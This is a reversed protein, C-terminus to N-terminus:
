DRHQHPFSSRFDPFENSRLDIQKQLVIRNAMKQVIELLSEKEKHSLAPRGHAHAWEDVDVNFVKQNEHKARQM